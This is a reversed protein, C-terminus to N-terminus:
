FHKSLVTVFLMHFHESKFCSGCSRQSTRLLYELPVNTETAWIELLELSKNGLCNYSIDLHQVQVEDFFELSIHAIDNHALDINLFRSGKFAVTPIFGLKNSRLNIDVVEATVGGFVEQDV